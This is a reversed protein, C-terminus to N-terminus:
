FRPQFLSPFAWKLLKKPTSEIYNCPLAGGIDAILTDLVTSEDIGLNGDFPKNAMVQERVYRILAYVEVPEIGYMNAAVYLELWSEPNYRTIKGEYLFELLALITSRRFELIKLAHQHGSEPSPGHYNKHARFYDSHSHLVGEHAILSSKWFEYPFSFKTNSSSDLTGNSNILDSEFPRFEAESKQFYLTPSNKTVKFPDLFTLTVHFKSNRNFTDMSAQANFTFKWLSGDNDDQVSSVLPIQQKVKGNESQIDILTVVEQWASPTPDSLNCRDLFEHLKYDTMYIGKHYLHQGM